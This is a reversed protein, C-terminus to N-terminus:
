RVAGELGLLFQDIDRLLDAVEKCNDLLDTVDASAPRRINAMVKFDDEKIMLALEVRGTDFIAEDFIAPDFIGGFHREITRVQNHSLLHRPASDDTAATWRDFLEKWRSLKEETLYKRMAENAQRRRESPFGRKRYFQATATKEDLGMAIQFAKFSRYELGAVLSILAGILGYFQLESDRLDEFKQLDPVHIAEM